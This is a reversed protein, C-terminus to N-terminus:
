RWKGANQFRVFTIVDRSSIATTAGCRVYRASRRNWEFALRPHGARVQCRVPRREERSEFPRVAVAAGPTVRLLRPARAFNVPAGVRASRVSACQRNAPDHPWRTSNKAPDHPWGTQLIIPGGALSSHRFNQLNM